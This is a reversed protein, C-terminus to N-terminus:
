HKSGIEHIQEATWQGDPGPPMNLDLFAVAYPTKEEISHKVSNVADDGQSCSTIEFKPLFSLPHTPDLICQYLDLITSDDDVVLIRYRNNNSESM